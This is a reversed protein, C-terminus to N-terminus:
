QSKFADLYICTYITHQWSTNQWWIRCRCFYWRYWKSIVHLTHKALSCDSAWPNIKWVDLTNSNFITLYSIVHSWYWDIANSEVSMWAVCEWICRIWKNKIKLKLLIFMYKYLFLLSHIFFFRLRMVERNM